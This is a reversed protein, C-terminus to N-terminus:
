TMAIARLWAHAIEPKEVDAHSAIVGPDGPRGDGDLNYIGGPAFAYDTDVRGLRLEQVHGTKQAGNRGLGGFPSSADGIDAAQQGGLRAAIPYAMGVAKDNKSHTILTPGLVQGMAVVARFFGAKPAGAPAYNESFAYHSFAAQLLALTHVKLDTGGAAGMVAATVLRAGFSHGALHLRLDPRAARIQKLVAHLGDRGVMGAREKMVYFTAIDLTDRVKHVIGGFFDGLGAAGGGAGAAGGGGVVAAGGTDAPLGGDGPVPGMRDWFAEPELDRFDAARDTDVQQMDPVLGRVIELFRKRARPEDELRRVLSRLEALQPRAEDGFLTGFEGIMAMADDAIGAAGGPIDDADASRKSPWYVELVVALRGAPWAVRGPEGAPRDMEARVRGLIGTYLRAADQEDNRWGHSLVLLDTVEPPQLRALLQPVESDPTLAIRRDFKVAYCDFGSRVVM